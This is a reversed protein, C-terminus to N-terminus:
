RLQLTQADPLHLLLGEVELLRRQHHLTASLLTPSAYVHRRQLAQLQARVAEHARAVRDNRTSSPLFHSTSKGANSSHLIPLCARSPFSM